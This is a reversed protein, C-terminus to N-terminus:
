LYIEAQLMSHGTGTAARDLAVPRSLSHTRIGRPM